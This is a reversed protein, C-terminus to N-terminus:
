RDTRGDLFHVAFLATQHAVVADGPERMERAVIFDYDVGPRKWAAHAKRERFGRRNRLPYTRNATM